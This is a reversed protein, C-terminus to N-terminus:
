CSLISNAADVLPSGTPPLGYAGLIIDAAQESLGYTVSQHHAALQTPFVSSDAVRVNSLGYVKLNPDVVGGQELPLMVCTCLAHWETGVNASMWANWDADTQVSPGPSVEATITQNLPYSQGITRAMKLGERLLTVDAPHSLYAPDIVPPQFPDPSSIWIHGRSFPHQLGAQISITNGAGLVSFMFEIAGADSLTINTAQATYTARYGAKVTNDTSPVLADVLSTLNALVASQFAATANGLIQTANAFAVASNVFSLFNPPQSSSAEISSATQSTTQFVIAANPHDQLHQGVGPLELTINVGASTLIDRAGVGSHFLMAPSGVPGGALIVEKRVNVVKRPATSSAAYEVGTAVLGASNSGQGGFILRTVTANPLIDLNSRPPLPDIYASKSYSRNFGMSPDMSSTAIFAGVGNGGNPDANLPFGLGGLTSTWNGVIPVMYGPYSSVLPGSLGHSANTYLINGATAVAQTPPVFTESKEMAGWLSFWGWNDSGDAGNQLDRISDVEIASPRVMYLANMATSGGLVKGRPWYITRNLLENQPWTNYGWDASTGLLSKYYAYGPINIIDKFADGTDGAELVLVTYSSGQSLRSALVLGALGGGCIVFDYADSINGNHVIGRKIPHESSDPPSTWPAGLVLFLHATVLLFRALRKM